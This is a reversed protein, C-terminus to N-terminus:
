VNKYCSKSRHNKILMPMSQNLSQMSDEPTDDNTSASWFEGPRLKFSYSTLSAADGIKVYAADSSDNFLVLGNRSNNRSLATQVTLSPSLNTVTSM